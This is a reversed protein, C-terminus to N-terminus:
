LFIIAVMSDFYVEGTKFVTSYMSYAFSVVLALSIPIDLHLQKNRMAKFTNTYFERAPFALAIFAFFASLYRFLDYFFSQRLDTSLYDASALLMINMLCFFSVGLNIFDRHSNTRFNMNPSVPYGLSDLTEAIKSLPTKSTDFEVSLKKHAMNISINVDPYLKRIARECVWVCAYCDLNTMYLHAQRSTGRINTCFEKQYDDHNLIKYDSDIKEKLSNNSGEDLKKYYEGLNLKEILYYATNCGHCCFKGKQNKDLVTNCHLCNTVNEESTESHEIVSMVM